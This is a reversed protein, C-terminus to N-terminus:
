AVLEAPTMQLAKAWKPLKKLSVLTHGTEIRWVHLYTTGLRAALAARSLRLEERRSQIRKGTSTV